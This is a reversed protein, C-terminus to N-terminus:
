ERPLMLTLSLLAPLLAPSMTLAAVVRESRSKRGPFQARKYREEGLTVLFPHPTSSRAM